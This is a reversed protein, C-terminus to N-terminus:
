PVQFLLPKSCNKPLRSQLSTPTNMPSADNPNSYCCIAALLLEAKYREILDYRVWYNIGKSGLNYAHFLRRRDCCVCRRM